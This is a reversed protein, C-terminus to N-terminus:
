FPLDDEELPMLDDSSDQEVESTMMNNFSSAEKVKAILYAKMEKENLTELYLEKQKQIDM